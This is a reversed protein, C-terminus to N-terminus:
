LGTITTRKLIVALGADKGEEPFSGLIPLLPLLKSSSAPSVVQFLSRRVGGRTASGTALEPLASGDCRVCLLPGCPKLYTSVGQSVLGGCSSGIFRLAAPRSVGSTFATIGKSTRPRVRAVSVSGALLEKAPLCPYDQSVRDHQPYLM